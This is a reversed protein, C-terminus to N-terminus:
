DRKHAEMAELILQATQEPALETTDIDIGLGPFKFIELTDLFGAIMEADVLKNRGEQRQPRVARKLNEERSCSLYM